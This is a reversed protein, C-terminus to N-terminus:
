KGCALTTAAVSNSFRSNSLENRAFVRYSYQEGCQVQSDRFTRQGWPVRAVLKFNVQGKKKRLVVYEEVGPLDSWGLTVGGSSIVVIRLAVQFLHLESCVEGKVVRLKRCGFVSGSFPAVAEFGRGETVSLPSLLLITLVTLLLKKMRRKLKNKYFLRITRFSVSERIFAVDLVILRILGLINYRFIFKEASFLYFDQM